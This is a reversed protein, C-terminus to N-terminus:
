TIILLCSKFMFSVLVLTVRCTDRVLVSRKRESHLVVAVAVQVSQRVSLKLVLSCQASVRDLVLALAQKRSVWKLQASVGGGSRGRGERRAESRRLWGRLGFYLVSRGFAALLASPRLLLLKM